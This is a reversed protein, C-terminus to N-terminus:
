GGYIRTLEVFYYPIQGQGGYRLINIFLMVYIGIYAYKLLGKVFNNKFVLGVYICEFIYFPIGIRDMYTYFYGFSNLLIGLIYYVTVNEDNIKICRSNSDIIALLLLIVKILMLFGIRNNSADFYHDYRDFNRFLLPIIAVSSFAGIIILLKSRKKLKNWKIIELALFVLGIAASTHFQIAVLVGFIFIFYKETNIFRTFYFLIAVACMQRMINMTLFYFLIYYSIVSCTFNSIGKFDWLRLIVFANTLTAFLLMLVTPSKIFSLVIVCLYKFSNEFGYVYREHGDIILSFANMYHPTDIGVNEGRLGSLLSLGLILILLYKKNQTANAKSSFYALFFIM